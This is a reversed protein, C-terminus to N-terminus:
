QNNQKEIRKENETKYLGKKRGAIYEDMSICGKLIEPDEGCYLGWEEIKGMLEKYRSSDIEVIEVEETIPHTWKVTKM